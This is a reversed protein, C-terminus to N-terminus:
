ASLVEAIESQGSLRFKELRDELTNRRLMSGGHALITLGGRTSGGADVSGAVGLEALTKEALAADTPDVLLTVDGEL